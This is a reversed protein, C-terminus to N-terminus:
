GYDWSRFKLVTLMQHTETAQKEELADAKEMRTIMAYM